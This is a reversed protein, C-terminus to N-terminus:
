RCWSDNRSRRNLLSERLARLTTRLRQGNANIHPLTAALKCSAKSSFVSLHLSAAVVFHATSLVDHPGDKSGALFGDGPEDDALRAQRRGVGLDAGGGGRRRGAVRDIVVAHLE